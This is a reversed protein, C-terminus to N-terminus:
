RERGIKELREGEEGLEGERGVLKKTMGDGVAGEVAKAPWWRM